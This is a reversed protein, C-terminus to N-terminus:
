KAVVLHILYHTDPRRIWVRVYDDGKLTEVKASGVGPPTDTAVDKIEAQPVVSAVERGVVKGGQVFEVWREYQQTAGKAAPGADEGTLRVQYTGPALPQGNAMVRKPIRVSGLVTNGGAAAQIAAAASVSERAYLTSSAVEAGVLALAAALAGTLRTRKMM